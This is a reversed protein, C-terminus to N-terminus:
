DEKDVLYEMNQTKELYKVVRRVKKDFYDFAKEESFRYVFVTKGMVEPYNKWFISNEKPEITKFDCVKQFATSATQSNLIILNSIHKMYEAENASDWRAMDFLQQIAVYPCEGDEDSKGKMM